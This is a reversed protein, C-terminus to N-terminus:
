FSTTRHRKRKRGCQGAKIQSKGYRGNMTRLKQISMLILFLLFSFDTVLGLNLQQLHSKPTPITKYNVLHNRNTTLPSFWYKIRVTSLDTKGAWNKRPAASESTWSSELYRSKHTRWPYHEMEAMAGGRESSVVTGMVTWTLFRSWGYEKTKRTRQM